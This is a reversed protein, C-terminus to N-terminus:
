DGLVQNLIKLVDELRAGSWCVHRDFSDPGPLGFATQLTCRSPLARLAEIMIQLLMRAEELLELFDDETAEPDLHLQDLMELASRANWRDVQAFLRGLTEREADHWASLHDLASDLQSPLFSSSPQALLTTNM